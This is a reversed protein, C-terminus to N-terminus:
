PFKDPLQYGLGLWVLEPCDGGMVLGPSSSVMMELWGDDRISLEPAAGEVHMVHVHSESFM